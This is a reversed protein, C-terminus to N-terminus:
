IEFIILIYRNKGTFCRTSDCGSLVHILSLAQVLQDDCTHLSIDYCTLYPAAGYEIYINGNLQLQSYGAFGVVDTGIAVM